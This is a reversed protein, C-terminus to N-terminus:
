PLTASMMFIAITFILSSLRGTAAGFQDFHTHLRGKADAMEPLPKVYTSYLKQLERYLLVDSVIPHEHQIKELEPSATSVVGKPTKKLNRKPIALDEFLILSLQQTSNVNFSKKAKKHIATQLKEIEKGMEYSLQRFHKVDIKIGVEEMARLIKTLKKELEYIEKSFIGDKYYAEIKEEVSDQERAEKFMSTQKKSSEKDGNNEEQADAGPIRKLLSIFELNRLLAEVDKQDYNHWALDKLSFPISVGQEITALEKSEVAQKEELLLKERLKPKVESDNFDKKKLQRYMSEISGFQKLLQIATKEGIGSVGPINDSVDGRLGKYDRMQSPKLGDFKEQVAKEDYLLSEQISKRMTYVKTNEGILQLMDLDGSVVITEITEKKQQSIKKAITGIVDDAEFGQKEYVPIHFAGLAEKIAPFQQYLEDPAAVRTAKYEKFKKHRFTPGEMDFAAAMYEPDFEKMIRLLISIFGYVANVMEGKRTRFPPLAHYARHILSNADILLL